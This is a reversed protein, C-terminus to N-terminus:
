LTDFDVSNQIRRKNGNKKLSGKVKFYENFDQIECNRVSKNDYFFSIGRPLHGLFLSCFPGESPVVAM